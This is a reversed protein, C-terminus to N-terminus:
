PLPAPGTAPFCEALLQSFAPGRWSDLPVSRVGRLQLCRGIFGTPDDAEARIWFHRELATKVSRRARNRADAQEGSQEAYQEEKDQEIENARVALWRMVNIDTMSLGIFLCRSDHLAFSMVRNAFSMPSAVSSWYQSDTFVLFDAAGQWENKQSKIRPDVHPLFGHLHYIPLAQEGRGREPHHGARSVMKLVKRQPSLLWTATELLDDVNFTIVRQIRRAGGFGHEQVILRALVSLSDQGQELTARDPPKVGQYLASKLAEPFKADLKRSILELALPLFQPLHSVDRPFPDKPFTDKWLRDVLEAWFPVGSALSIGAGLVLTIGGQQCAELLRRRSSEDTRKRKDPKPAEPVQPDASDSEAM